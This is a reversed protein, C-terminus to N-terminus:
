FSAFFDWTAKPGESWVSHGQDPLQCWVVDRQCGQFSVCPQPGAPASEDSCGNAWRWHSLSSLGNDLTVADDAEGHFVMVAPPKGTCKLNGDHDYEDDGAFPGGGAHPAIARLADGRRCGLQNSFYAGNSYGTAFVRSEDICHSAELSAVM